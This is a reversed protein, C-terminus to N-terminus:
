GMDAAAAWTQRAEREAHRPVLGRARAPVTVDPREAAIRSTRGHRAQTGRWPVSPIEIEVPRNEWSSTVTVSVLTVTKQRQRHASFPRCCLGEERRYIASGRM